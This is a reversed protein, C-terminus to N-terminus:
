ESHPIEQNEIKPRPVPVTLPFAENLEPTLEKNLSARINVLEQLSNLDLPGKSTISFASRFLLYDAQKQSILPYNDFHDIILSLSKKSSVTYLISNLAGRNIRGEGGFFKQIIELLQLDKENLHIVFVPQM